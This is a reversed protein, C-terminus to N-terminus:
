SNLMQSYLLHGWARLISDCNWIMWNITLKAPYQLNGMELFAIGVLICHISFKLTFYTVGDELFVTLIKIRM